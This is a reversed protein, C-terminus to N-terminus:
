ERHSGPPDQPAVTTADLYVRGLGDPQWRDTYSAIRALLQEQAEWIPFRAASTLTAEPCRAAVQRATLGAVVGAQGAGADAAVVRGQADLLALPQGALQPEAQRAIRPGFDPVWLYAIQREGM